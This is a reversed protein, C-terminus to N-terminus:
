GGVVSGGNVVQRSKLGIPFRQLYDNPARGDFTIGDIFESQPARYGDTDWPFDAKDVKGEDVLLRAAQLYLDPRYVKRAVADYWADDKTEAIQGWRRMQTLYWVADSYYPYTAYYRYFM